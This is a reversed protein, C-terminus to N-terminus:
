ELTCLIDILEQIESKSLENSFSALKEMDIMERLDNFCKIDRWNYEIDPLIESSM